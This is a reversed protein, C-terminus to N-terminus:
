QKQDRVEAQAPSQGLRSLIVMPLFFSRNDPRTTEGLDQDKGPRIPLTELPKSSTTNGRVNREAYDSSIM